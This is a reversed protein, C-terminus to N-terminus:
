YVDCKALSLTASFLCCLFVVAEYYAIYIAEKLGFLKYEWSCVKCFTKLYAVTIWPKPGSCLYVSAGMLINFYLFIYGIHTESTRGEGTFVCRAALTDGFKIELPSEVPYFAQSFYCLSKYFYMRHTEKWEGPSFDCIYPICDLPSRMCM